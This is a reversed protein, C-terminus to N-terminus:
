KSATRKAAREDAAAANRAPDADFKTKCGGCCFEYTKGNYATTLTGAKAAPIVSGQIACYTEGTAAASAPKTAAAPAAAAPGKEVAAFDAKLAALKQEAAYIETRLDSMRSYKAPNKDFEPKCGACCVYYNKNNYSIPRSTDKVEEGTVACVVPAAATTKKLVKPGALTPAAALAASLAVGATLTLRLQISTM